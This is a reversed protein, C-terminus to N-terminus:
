KILLKLYIYHYSFYVLIHMHHMDQHFVEVYNMLNGDRFIIILLLLVDCKCKLYNGKYGVTGYTATITNYQYNCASFFNPRLRGCYNKIVDTVVITILTSQLLSLISLELSPYKIKHKMRKSFINFLFMIIIPLGISYFFLAVDSYIINIGLQIVIIHNLYQLIEKLFNQNILILM